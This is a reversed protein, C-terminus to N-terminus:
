DQRIERVLCNNEQQNQWDSYKNIKMSPRKEFTQKLKYNINHKAFSKLKDVKNSTCANIQDFILVPSGMSIEDDM